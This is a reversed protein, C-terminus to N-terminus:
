YVEFDIIEIVPTLQTIRQQGFIGGFHNPIFELGKAVQRPGNFTGNVQNLFLELPTIPLLNPHIQTQKFQARM